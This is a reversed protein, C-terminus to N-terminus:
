QEVQELSADPTADVKQVQSRRRAYVEIALDSLRDRDSELGAKGRDQMRKYSDAIFSRVTKVARDTPRGPAGAIQFAGPEDRRAFLMEWVELEIVKQPRIQGDTDFAHEWLYRIALNKAGGVDGRDKPGGRKGKRYAEERGADAVLAAVQALRYCFRWILAPGTEPPMDVARLQMAAHLADVLASEISRADFEYMPDDGRAFVEDEVEALSLLPKGTLVCDNSILAKRIREGVWVAPGQGAYHTLEEMSESEARCRLVEVMQVRMGEVDDASFIVEGWASTLRAVAGAKGKTM